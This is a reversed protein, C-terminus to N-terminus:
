FALNIPATRVADMEIFCNLELGQCVQTFMQSSTEIEVSYFLVPSGRHHAESWTLIVGGTQADITAQLGEVQEPTTAALITCPESFDTAYGWKNEAKLIIDYVAGEIVDTTIQYETQSYYDKVLEVYEEQGPTHRVQIIYGIVASGGDDPAEFDFAVVSNTTEAM